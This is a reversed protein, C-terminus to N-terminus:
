FLTMESIAHMPCPSLNSPKQPAPSSFSSPYLIFPLVDLDEMSQIGPGQPLSM